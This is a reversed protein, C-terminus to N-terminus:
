NRTLLTKESKQGDSNISYFYIQQNNIVEIYGTVKKPIPKDDCYKCLIELVIPTKDLFLNYTWRVGEISKPDEFGSGPEKGAMLFEKDKTLTMGTNTSDTWTGYFFDTTVNKINTAQGFGPPIPGFLLTVVLVIRM